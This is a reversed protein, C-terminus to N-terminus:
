YLYLKHGLLNVSHINKRFKFLTFIWILQCGIFIDKSFDSTLNELKHCKRQGLLNNKDKILLLDQM